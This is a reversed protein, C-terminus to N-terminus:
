APSSSGAWRRLLQATLPPIRGQAATARSPGPRSCCAHLVLFFGVVELPCNQARLDLARSTDAMMHNTRTLVLRGASLLPQKVTASSPSPSSPGTSTKLTTGRGDEGGTIEKKKGVEGSGLKRAEGARQQSGPRRRDGTRTAWRAGRGPHDPGAEAAPRVGHPGAPPSVTGRLVTALPSWGGTTGM